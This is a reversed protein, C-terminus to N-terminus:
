EWQSLFEFLNIGKTIWLQKIPIALSYELFLHPPASIREKHTHVGGGGCSGVCLVENVRAPGTVLSGVGYKNSREGDAM